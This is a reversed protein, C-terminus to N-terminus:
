YCTRRTRSCFFVSFDWDENKLLKRMSLVLEAGDVLIPINDDLLYYSDAKTKMIQEELDKVNVLIVFLHVYKKFVVM